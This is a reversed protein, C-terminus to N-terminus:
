AFPLTTLGTKDIKLVAIDAYKDSGVVKATYEEKNAFQVKVDTAGDVVHNNTLIYGDPTVVVGSGLSTERQSQPQNPVRGGFFQRFFPDDFM